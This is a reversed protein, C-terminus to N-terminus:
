WGAFAQSSPLLLIRLMLWTRRAWALDRDLVLGWEDESSRLSILTRWCFYTLMGASFFIIAGSVFVDDIM